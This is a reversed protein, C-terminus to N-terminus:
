AYDSAYIRSFPKWALLGTIKSLRIADILAELDRVNLSYTEALASLIVPDRSAVDPAEERVAYQYKERVADSLQTGAVEWTDVFARWDPNWSYQKQCLALQAMYDHREPITCDRSLSKTKGLKALKGICPTWRYDGSISIWRGRLFILQTVPTPNLKIKLGLKTFAEVTPETSETLVLHWSAIAVATNGVTTDPGGSVRMPRDHFLRMRNPAIKNDRLYRNSYVYPASHLGRVAKLTEQPVGFLQMLDYQFGLAGTNESQDFSSFDSCYFVGRHFVVVDDGAAIIHSNQPNAVVHNLWLNLEQASLGAGYTIELHGHKIPVGHPNLLCWYEKLRSTFEYIHPGFYYQFAPDVNGIIRAKVNHDADGVYVEGQKLM